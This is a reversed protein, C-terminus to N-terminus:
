VNAPIKFCNKYSALKVNVIDHPGEINISLLARDHTSFEPGKQSRGSGEGMWKARTRLSWEGPVGICIVSQHGQAEDEPGMRVGPDKALREEALGFKGSRALNQEFGDRRLFRVICGWM